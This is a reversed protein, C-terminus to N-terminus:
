VTLSAAEFARLVSLFKADIQVLPRATQVHLLADLLSMEQTKMLFGVVVAASRNQGHHCHILM